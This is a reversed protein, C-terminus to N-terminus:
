NGGGKVLKVIFFILTIMLPVLIFLSLPVGPVLQVSFITGIGTFASEIFDWAGGWANNQNHQLSYQVGANFIENYGDNNPLYYTSAENYGKEYNLRILTPLDLILAQIEMNTCMFTTSDDGDVWIIFGSIDYPAVFEFKLPTNGVGVLSQTQLTQLEGTPSLVGVNFPIRTNGQNHSFWGAFIFKTNATIVVNLPMYCGVKNSANGDLRVYNDLKAIESYFGNGNYAQMAVVVASNTLQYKFSAQIDNVGNIYGDLYTTSFPMPTGTNYPYYDSTFFTQAQTLNPENGSGFMLTLDTLIIYFENNYSTNADVGYILKASYNSDATYIGIYTTSIDLLMTSGSVLGLRKNNSDMTVFKYRVFYKHGNEISITTDSLPLTSNGWSNTNQGSMKILGNNNTFTISSYNSRLTSPNWLQNFNVVYDATLDNFEANATSYKQVYAFITVGVMLIMIVSILCILTIRTAKKM